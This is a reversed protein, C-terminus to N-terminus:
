NVNNMLWICDIRSGTMVIKKGQRLYMKAGITKIDVGQESLQGLFLLNAKAKPIYLVNNITTSSASGNKKLCSLKIKGVVKALFYNRNAYEIKTSSKKLRGIFVNQELTFHWSYVSDLHWSSSKINWFDIEAIM